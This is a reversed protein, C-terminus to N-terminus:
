ALDGVVPCQGHPSSVARGFSSRRRQTLEYVEHEAGAAISTGPTRASSGARELELVSLPYESQGPWKATRTDAKNAGVRDCRAMRAFAFPHM